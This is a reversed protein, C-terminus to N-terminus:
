CGACQDPANGAIVSHDRVLRFGKTYVGGGQVSIGKGGKITNTSITSGQLTLVPTLQKFVQGNFVGGGYIWGTPATVVGRNETIRVNMLVAPANNAIGVGLVHASGASSSASVTNGSITSDSVSAPPSRRDGTYLDLVAVALAVGDGSQVHVVNGTIRTGAITVAGDGELAGGSGGKVTTSTGVTADVRNNAIRSTRVTLTTSPGCVCVGGDFGVPNGASDSLMVRNGVIETGDIIATGGNAVYIGGSDAHMDSVSSPYSSTLSSLNKSIVSNQVTLTGFRDVYIGGGSAFRGNAATVARNRTVTSNILTLRTRLESAIGGGDAQATLDGGAENDSVTTRVLTLTGWNDIGAGAAQAFPCPGDPCVAAVSKVAATPAARNGAVISDSITVEAGPLVEIGGALATARPYGPGCTPIDPGCAGQPSSTGVGGTVKVGSISITLTRGRAGLTLVPGGGRFTTSRAGAGVLKVSKDILGGAYSGAAITITDGDGAAKVAAALTRSCGSGPGVCGGTSTAAAASGSLGVVIAALTAAIRKV